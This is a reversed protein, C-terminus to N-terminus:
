DSIVNAEFCDEGGGYDDDGNSIGTIKSSVDDLISSCFPTHIDNDDPNRLPRHLWALSM